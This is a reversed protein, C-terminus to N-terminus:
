RTTLRAADVITVNGLRQLEFQAVLLRGCSVCIQRHNVGFSSVIEPTVPM